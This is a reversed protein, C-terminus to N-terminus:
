FTKAFSPSFHSPSPWPHSPPLSNKSSPQKISSPPPAIPHPKLLFYLLTGSVALFAATGFFTNALSANNQADQHLSLAKTSADRTKQEKTELANSQQNSAIAGFIGGVGASLIAVGGVALGIWRRDPSMKPPIIKPKPKPKLTLRLLQLQGVRTTFSKQYPFFGKKTCHILTKGAEAEFKAPTEGQWKGGPHQAICHIKQTSQLQITTKIKPYIEKLWKQTAKVYQGHPRLKLYARYHDRAQLWKKLKHYTYGVFFQVAGRLKAYKPKDPVLRFSARFKVLAQEYKKQKALLVGEKWFREAEGLLADSTAYASPTPLINFCLFLAFLLYNGLRLLNTPTGVLSIFKSVKISPIISM